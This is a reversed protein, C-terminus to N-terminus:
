DYAGFTGVLQKQRIRYWRVGEDTVFEDIIKRELIPNNTALFTAYTPDSSASGAISSVDMGLFQGGSGTISATGVLYNIGYSKTLAAALGTATPIYNITAFCGKKISFPVPSAGVTGTTNLSESITVLVAVDGGAKPLIGETRNLLVEGPYNYNEWTTFSTVEDGTALPTGDVNLMVVTVFNKFGEVNKTRARYIPAAAGGQFALEPESTLSYSANLATPTVRTGQSTFSVYRIGDNVESYADLL